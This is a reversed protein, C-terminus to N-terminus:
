TPATLLEQPLSILIKVQVKQLLIQLTMKNTQTEKLEEGILMM